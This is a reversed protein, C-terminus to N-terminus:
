WSEEGIFDPLYSAQLLLNAPLVGRPFPTGTSSEERPGELEHFHPVSIADGHRSKKYIGLPRGVGVGVDMPDWGVGTGTSGTKADFPEVIVGNAGLGM